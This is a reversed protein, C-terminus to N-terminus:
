SRVLLEPTRIEGPAGYPNFFGAQASRWLGYKFLAPLPDDGRWEM